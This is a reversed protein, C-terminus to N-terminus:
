KNDGKVKEGLMTEIASLKGVVVNKFESLDDKSAFREDITAELRALRVDLQDVYRAEAKAALEVRLGTYAAYYGSLAAAITIAFNILFKIAAEKEPM